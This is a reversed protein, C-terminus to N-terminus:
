GARRQKYDPPMGSAKRRWLAPELVKAAMPPKQSLSRLNQSVQEASYYYDLKFPTENALIFSWGRKIFEIWRTRRFEDLRAFDAELERIRATREKLPQRTGGKLPQRTGGKAFQEEAKDTEDEDRYPLYISLGHCRHEKEKFQNAIVCGNDRVELAKCIEECASHLSSDKIRAKAFAADLCHCFDCVDVLLGFVFDQTNKRASLVQKRVSKDHSSALLATSLRNLPDTVTHLKRLDLSALTIGKVGTDATAIYDRFAEQYLRPIMKCVKRVDDRVKHARLDSLIKEYPLSADPVDEQSAIMFDVYDQLESAVEIMSMSCADMGIIDLAHRKEQESRLDDSITKPHKPGLDGKALNTDQLAKRLNASTLYRRVSRHNTGFRRQGDLLLEIGHGWLVLCYRETRSIDSAYDIFETLTEPRTMDVRRITKLHAIEEKPIRSSELPLTRKEPDGDFLYMRADEQQNDDFEAVVVIGDGAANRLQKLSEIAFNALVNDANIYVMITWNVPPYTM